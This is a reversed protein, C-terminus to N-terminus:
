SNEAIYTSPDEDETRVGRGSDHEYRWALWAIALQERLEDSAHRRFDPLASQEEEGLHEDNEKRAAKVGDWWETTGVPHRGAARVGDKIKNHDGIADDTEDNADRGATLLSPYFVEEECQAHVLLLRALGNWVVALAADDRADDFMAFGRRLTAHDELILATVDLM